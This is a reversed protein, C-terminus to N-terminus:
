QGSALSTCHLSSLCQKATEQATYQNSVMRGRVRRKPMQTNFINVVHQFRWREQPLFGCTKISQSSGPLSLSSTALHVGPNSQGEDRPQDSSIWDPISKEQMLFFGGSFPFQFASRATSSQSSFRTQDASSLQQPHLPLTSAPAATPAAPITATPPFSGLAGECQDRCVPVPEHYRPRSYLICLVLRQSFSTSAPCMKQIYGARHTVTEALYM